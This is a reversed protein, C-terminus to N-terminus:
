YYDIEREIITTPTHNTYFIGRIWNGRNDYDYIIDRNSKGYKFDNELFASKISTIDSYTNYTIIEKLKYKEDRTELLLKNSLKIEYLDGDHYESIIQNFAFENVFNCVKTCIHNKLIRIGVSANSPKASM